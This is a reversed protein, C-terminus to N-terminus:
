IMDIMLNEKKNIESLKIKTEESHRYNVQPKHGGDNLNTLPGKGLDLRGIKRILLKELHLSEEESLNDQIKIIIPDKGNKINEEIISFKLSNKYKCNNKVKNLHYLYRDYKGKGVYFPEYDFSLDDYEYHGPKLVNLYIYTYFMIYINYNFFPIKFFM